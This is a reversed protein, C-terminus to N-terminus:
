QAHKMEATKNQSFLWDWTDASNYAAQWAYHSDQDPRTIRHEGGMKKLEHHWANSRWIEVVMDGSNHFFWSSVNAFESTLDEKKPSNIAPAIPIMAAFKEPHAAIYKVTVGGGASFGTMYIRGHDIHKDYRKLIYEVFDHINNSKWDDLMTSIVIAPYHNGENILKPLGQTLLKPLDENGDGTIANSGNWYFIIPWHEPNTNFKTPLYEYYGFENGQTQIHVSTQMGATGNAEYILTHESSPNCGLLYLFSFIVFVFKMMEVGRYQLTQHM